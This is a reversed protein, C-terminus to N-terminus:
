KEKKVGWLPFYEFPPPPFSIGEEAAWLELGRMHHHVYMIYDHYMGLIVETDRVHRELTALRAHNLEHGERLNDLQLQSVERSLRFSGWVLRGIFVSVASLGVTFVVTLIEAITM